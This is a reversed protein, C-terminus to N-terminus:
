GRPAPIAGGGNRAPRHMGPKRVAGSSKFRGPSRNGPSACPWPRPTRLEPRSHPPATRPRTVCGATM